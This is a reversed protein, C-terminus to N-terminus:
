LNERRENLSNLIHVKTDLFQIAYNVRELENYLMEENDISIRIINVLDIILENQYTIKKNLKEELDFIRCAVCIFLVGIITSFVYPFVSFKKRTM